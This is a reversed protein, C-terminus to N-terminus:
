PQISTSAQFGDSKWASLMADLTEAGKGSPGSWRLALWYARKDRLPVRGALWPLMDAIRGTRRNTWAQWEVPDGMPHSDPPAIIAWDLSAEQAHEAVSGANVRRAQWGHEIDWGEFWPCHMAVRQPESTLLCPSYGVTVSVRTGTRPEWYVARRTWAFPHEIENLNLVAEPVEETRVLRLGALERPWERAAPIKVGPTMLTILGAIAALVGIGAITVVQGQVLDVKPAVATPRLRDVLYALLLMVPATFWSGGDHGHWYDFRAKDTVIQALWAVRLVSVLFGALAVWVAIVLARRWNVRMLLVAPGLLLFMQALLPVATCTGAVSVAGRPLTIVNGAITPHAGTAKLIAGGCSATLDCLWPPPDHYGLQGPPFVVWFAAAGILRWSRWPGSWGWLLLVLGLAEAFLSTRLLWFDEVHLWTFMWTASTLLFLGAFSASVSSGPSRATAQQQLWHWAMFGLALHALMMEGDHTLQWIKAVPLAYLGLAGWWFYRVPLSAPEAAPEDM